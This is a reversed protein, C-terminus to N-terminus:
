PAPSAQPSTPIRARDPRLQVVVQGGALRDALGLAADLSELKAYVMWANCVVTEGAAVDRGVLSFDHANWRRNASISPCVDRQVVNVISWGTDRIPTVMIPHEYCREDIPRAQDAPMGVADDLTAMSATLQQRSEADRPWTRHEKEGLSPQAWEGDVRLFPETPEHFYNSILTRFDLYAQDFAFAYEAHICCDPLLRYTITSRVRWSEYPEIVVRVTDPSILESHVEAELRPVFLGHGSRAFYHELNMCMRRTVPKTDAGWTIEIGHQHGGAIYGAMKPQSFRWAPTLEIDM